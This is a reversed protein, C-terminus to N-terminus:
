QILLYAYPLTHLNKIQACAERNLITSELIRSELIECKLIESDCVSHCLCLSVALSVCVTLLYV